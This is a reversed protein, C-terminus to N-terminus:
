DQNEIRLLKKYDVYEYLLMLMSKVATTIQYAETKGIITALCERAQNKTIIVVHAAPNRYKTRIQECRGVFCNDDLIETGDVM